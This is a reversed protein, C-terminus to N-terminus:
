HSTRSKRNKITLICFGVFYYASTILFSARLINVGGISVDQGAPSLCMLVITFLWILLLCINVIKNILYVIPTSADFFYVEILSALSFIKGLTM